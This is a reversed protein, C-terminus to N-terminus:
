EKKGYLIKRISDTSLCFEVALTEVDAGAARRALVRANRERYYAKAGSREGWSAGDAGKPVYLTEGSAYKQLERLLKDPLVEAANKYRM